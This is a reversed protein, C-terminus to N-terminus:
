NHKLLQIAAPMFFDRGGPQFDLQQKLTEKATSMFDIKSVFPQDLALM